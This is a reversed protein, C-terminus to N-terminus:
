SEMFRLMMLNPFKLDGCFESIGKCTLSLRKCSDHMDDAPWELTNGHNVISAHEVKSFMDLVFARILDHMKICQFDDVKILLNTYILREICTNLRTRAERITYVKKFLKLGWGYRVLEETPINSDEPFLGCLFFTSKTEEDQLNDYSAKFVKSAVNEIDHHELRSLADKWSDKSKDRLTCAM